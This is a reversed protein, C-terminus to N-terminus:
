RIAVVATIRSLAVIIVDTPNIITVGSAGTSTAELKTNNASAWTSAVPCPAHHSATPTATPTASSDFYVASNKPGAIRIQSM